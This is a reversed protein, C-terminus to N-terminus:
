VPAHILRYVASLAYPKGIRSRFGRANLEKVVRRMNGLAAYLRRATAIAERERPDPELLMVPRTSGDKRTRVPGPVVRFGIPAHGTLEGRQKKVDLAAKIRARIFEREFAAVELLIGRVLRSAPDDGNGVGDATAIAAGVRALATQVLVATTTNRAFRDIRHFVLWGAGLSEVRAVAELLRPRDDLEAAGSMEEMIWTVIRIQNRAAWEEIAQRQATAGLEQLREDKSVRVMAVAHSPNPSARRRRQGSM